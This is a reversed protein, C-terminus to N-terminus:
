VIPPDLAASKMALETMHSTRTSHDQKFTVEASWNRGLAIRAWVTFAAGTLVICPSVVGLALTRQGRMLWAPLMGCAAILSPIEISSSNPTGISRTQCARVSGPM